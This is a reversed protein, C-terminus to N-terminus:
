RLSVWLPDLGSLSCLTDMWIRRKKVDKLLDRSGSSLLTGTEQIHLKQQCYLHTQCYNHRLTHKLGKKYALRRHGSKLRTLAVTQCWTQTQSHLGALHTSSKSETFSDERSEKTAGAWTHRPWLCEGPPSSLAASTTVCREGEPRAETFEGLGVRGGKM